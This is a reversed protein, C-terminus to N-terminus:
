GPGARLAREVCSLLEDSAAEDHALSLYLKTGMPNLFVGMEFLRLMLERQRKADGRRSTRYDFVPEPSLVVQALPGDGIVQAAVGREALVRRLGSRLYEGLRHLRPYVGEESLVSLAARGAACSVPNGGLTSAMWVYREEGLRDERVLDLVEARGGFAGM